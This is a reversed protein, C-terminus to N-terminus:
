WCYMRQFEEPFLRVGGALVCGVTILAAVDMLVLRGKLEPSVPDSMLLGFPQLLSAVAAIPTALLLVRVLTDPVDDRLWLSAWLLMSLVLTVAPVAFFAARGETQRDNGM